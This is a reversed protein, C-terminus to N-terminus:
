RDSTSRIALAALAAARLVATDPLIGTWLQQQLAAQHVLMGLGDFTTAGRTRAVHLLPTELPHYVIDAVALDSRLVAVDVPIEPAGPASGMGVPTTNILLDASAVDDTSGVRAAITLDAASTATDLSRNVIAIDAAGSRGLADIISRAAGGAGLVVIRKGAVEFGEAAVANVFGDGDTSVGLTSEDDRLVVTNVSRLSASAPDLEDVASAVEAKHPMTVALGSIGLTRMAAVAAAGDGPAVDFALFRWDLESAAFAANHLAPSLSHHVPHGIVGAVRTAGSIRPSTM